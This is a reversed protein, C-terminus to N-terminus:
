VVGQLAVRINVARERQHVLCRVRTHSFCLSERIKDSPSKFVVGGLIHAQHEPVVAAATDAAHAKVFIVIFVAKRQAFDVGREVGDVVFHGLFELEDAKVGAKHAREFGRINENRVRIIHERGLFSLRAAAPIVRIDQIIEHLIGRCVARRETFHLALAINIMAVARAILIDDRESYGVERLEILQQHRKVLGRPLHVFAALQVM